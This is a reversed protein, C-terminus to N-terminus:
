LHIDPLDNAFLVSDGEVLLDKLKERAEDLSKVMYIKDAPYGKSLLGERVHLSGSRGVLVAGDCVSAIMQGAEFNFRYGSAGLEVIGPTVVYKKGSFNSLVKIAHRIGDPNGNYGDDLVNVGNEGKILELRHPVQKLKEVALAIESLTFGFGLAVSACLAINSANHEGLLETHVDVRGDGSVLTFTTGSESVKVNEAYVFSNKYKKVGALYKECTAKDYIGVSQKSDASIYAKGNFNGGLIESKTKVINEVTLFSELHQSNIGTIVAISPEVLTALEKIDGSRRAGMECILIQHTSELKKVTKVVGMPTNYSEPSALVSYKESLITTLINKVTTKAYSGTVGIKILDSRSKLTAKCENYYKKNIVKELPKNIILALLVLYPIAIPCLCLVGYRFNALLNEQFPIAILNILLILIVSLLATLVSFTIMIRITRKTIVLPVRGKNKREGKAYIFLFVFYVLFGSYKVVPHDIFSLAMNILIFGLVSLMSLMCIRTFYVNDKKKLWKFYDGGKYGCQQAARLFKPSLLLMLVANLLGVIFFGLVRLPSFLESTRSIEEVPLIQTIPVIKSLLNFNLM